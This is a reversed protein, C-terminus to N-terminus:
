PLTLSPPCPTTIVSSVGAVGIRSTSRATIGSPKVADPHAVWCSPGNGMCAASSRATRWPCARTSGKPDSQYWSTHASPLAPGSSASRCNSRLSLPPRSPKTSRCKLRRHERHSVRHSSRVGNVGLPTVTRAVATPTRAETAKPTPPYAAPMTPASRKWSEAIRSQQSPSTARSLNMSDAKPSCNSTARSLTTWRARYAPMAQADKSCLQPGMAKSKPPNAISPLTAANTTTWRAVRIRFPSAGSRRRTTSDIRLLRTLRSKETSM